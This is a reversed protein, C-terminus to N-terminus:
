FMNFFHLLIYNPLIAFQVKLQLKHKLLGGPTQANLFEMAYAAAEEPDDTVVRDTSLYTRVPTQLQQLIRDNTNHSEENLPTLCCRDSMYVPDQMLNAHEPQTAPYVFNIMDEMSDAMIDQPLTVQDDDDHPEDGTGIRLLWESFQRYTHDRAARM